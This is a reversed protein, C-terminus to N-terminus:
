YSSKLRSPPKRTSYLRPCTCTPIQTHAGLKRSFNASSSKASATPCNKQNQARMKLFLNLIPPRPSPCNDLKYATFTRQQLAQGRRQQHNPSSSWVECGLQGRDHAALLVACGLQGRDAPAALNQMQAPAANHAPGASPQNQMIGALTGGGFHNEELLDEPEAIIPQERPAHFIFLLPQNASPLPREERPPGHPALPGAHPGPREERPTGHPVLREERRPDEHPSRPNERPVSREERPVVGCM